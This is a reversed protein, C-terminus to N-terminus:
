SVEETEGDKKHRKEYRSENFNSKFFLVYFASLVNQWWLHVKYTKPKM